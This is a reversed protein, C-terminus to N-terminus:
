MGNAFEVHIEWRTYTVPTALMKAYVESQVALTSHMDADPEETASTAMEAGAMTSPLLSPSARQHPLDSVVM